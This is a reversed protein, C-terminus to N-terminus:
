FHEPSGLGVETSLIDLVKAQREITDTAASLDKRMDAVCEELDRVREELTKRRPATNVEARSLM